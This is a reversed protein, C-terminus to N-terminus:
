REVAKRRRYKRRETVFGKMHPTDLCRSWKSLCRRCRKVLTTFQSSVKWTKREQYASEVENVWESVGDSVGEDKMWGNMWGRKWENVWESQGRGAWECVKPWRDSTVGAGHKGEDMMMEHSRRYYSVGEGPVRTDEPWIEGEGVAMRSWTLNGLMFYLSSFM